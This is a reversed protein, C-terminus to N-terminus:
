ESVFISPKIVNSKKTTHCIADYLKMHFATIM